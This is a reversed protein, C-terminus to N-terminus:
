QVLPNWNIFNLVRADMPLNDAEDFMLIAMGKKMNM